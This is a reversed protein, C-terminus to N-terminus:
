RAPREHCVLADSSGPVYQHCWSNERREGFVPDEYWVELSVKLVSAGSDIASWSQPQARIESTWEGDRILGSTRMTASDKPTVSAIVQGDLMVTLRFDIKKASSEGVNKVTLRFTIGSPDRQSDYRAFAFNPRREERLLRLSDEAAAASRRATQFSGVSALTAVISAVLAAVAIQRTKRSHRNEATEAPPIKIVLHEDQALNKAGPYSRTWTGRLRQPPRSRCTRTSIPRSACSRTVSCCRSEVLEVGGAILLSAASHRLDHFRVRPLKASELLAHLTRLVNRPHLGAGVKLHEGKGEKCVRYTTFVLGTEVWRPGAKLREELQRTRHM